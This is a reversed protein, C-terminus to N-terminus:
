ENDIKALLFRDWVRWYTTGNIKMPYEAGNRHLIVGGKKLGMDEFYKNLFAVRGYGKKPKMEGSAYMTDDVKEVIFLGSETKEFDERVQEVFVWDNISQVEGDKEWAYALNKQMDESGMPCYPVRYLGKKKDLCYQQSINSERWETIFHHFYLTAGEPVGSGEVTHIVTGFKNINDFENTHSPRELKIGGGLDYEEDYPNEVQVIFDRVAKKIIM